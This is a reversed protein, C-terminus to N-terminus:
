TIVLHSGSAQLKLNLRYFHQSNLKRVILFVVVNVTSGTLRLRFTLCIFPYKGTPGLDSPYGESFRSM